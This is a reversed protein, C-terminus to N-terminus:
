QGGFWIQTKNISLVFFKNKNFEIKIFLELPVIFIILADTSGGVCYNFDIRHMFLSRLLSIM